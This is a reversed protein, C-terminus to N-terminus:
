TRYAFSGLWQHMAVYAVPVAIVNALAVWRLFDKSLLVVVRGTDAGLIKRIGIEKTRREILFSALGFLGLASIFIALGTFASVIAGFRRDSRYLEGLSDDLFVYEFPYRPNLKTYLSRITELGAPLGEFRMKVLVYADREPEVRMVLPEVPAHLSKFNFDKVVGVIPGKRNYLNVWKGLPEKFGMRRAATENVIFADKDTPFARSFSRGVAMEMGLTEFYDYDISFQHVLLYDDPAKGEWSFATTSHVTYTPIDSTSTVGLIGATKMLEDKFAQYNARLDGSLRFHVVSDGKYGLDKTRMYHIQSAVVLTGAIFVTSLAFQIVVLSKRFLASRTGTMSGGRFISAPRFASLFLAPYVGSLAGAFLAAGMLFLIVPATALAGSPVAKGTLNNFQPMLLRVLGAAVVGSVAAFILSEGFFQRIIESRGAGVVKRVGIERSRLGSRATALNMYNICAILLVLFAIGAFIHVYQEKVQSAGDIDIAYSSRLHIDRLPQLNIFTSTKPNIKTLFKYVAPTLKKLDANPVLRVYTYFNNNWWGGNFGLQKIVVEFNGLFSFRLHSNRPVDRAVGTVKLDVADFFRLTQGMPDESGFIKRAATETIVLSSPGDLVTAPDGKVLPFNFIALFSPDAFAIGSETFQKEGFTVLNRGLPRFRAFELVEPFDAKLGPGLLEPTVAVPFIKGDAGKQDETLRYINESGAHFRDYSLEDRIWLFIFTSVAIGIALGAVNILSSAKHKRFNRAAVIAYNQIMTVSWYFSDKLAVPALYVIQASYWVLAAGRNRERALWEFKDEFDDMAGNRVTGSLLKALFYALIRPPRRGSAKM